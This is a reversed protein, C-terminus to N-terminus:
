GGIAKTQFTSSVRPVHDPDTVDTSGFLSYVSLLEELVMQLVIIQIRMKRQLKKKLLFVTSGTEKKPKTTPEAGRM